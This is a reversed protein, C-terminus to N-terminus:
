GREEDGRAQDPLGAVEGPLVAPVDRFGPEREARVRDGVAPQGVETVLLGPALEDRGLVFDLVLQAGLDFVESRRVPMRGNIEALSVDVGRATGAVAREGRRQPGGHVRAVGRQVDVPLAQVRGPRQPGYPGPDM